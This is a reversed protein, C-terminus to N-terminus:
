QGKENKDAGWRWRAKEGKKAAVIILAATIIGVGTLYWAVVHPRYLNFEFAVVLCAFLIGYILMVTWGQWSAPYWGYGYRKAKFWLKM